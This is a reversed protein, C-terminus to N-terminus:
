SKCLVRAWNRAAPSNLGILILALTEMRDRTKHDALMPYSWLNGQSRHFKVLQWLLVQSDNYAGAPKTKRWQGRNNVCLRIAERCEWLEPIHSKPFAESKQLRGISPEVTEAMIAEIKSEIEEKKM